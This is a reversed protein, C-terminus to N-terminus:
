YEREVKKLIDEVIPSMNIETIKINSKHKQFIYEQAFDRSIFNVGKFNLIAETENGLMHFLERVTLKLRLNNTFTKEINIEVTM